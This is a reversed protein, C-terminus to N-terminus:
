YYPTNRKEYMFDRLQSAKLGIFFYFRRNVGTPTWDFSMRWCALDKSVRLTPNRLDKELWDFSFGGSFQWGPAPEFSANVASQISERESIPNTRTLNYNLSISIDWPISFPDYGPSNEGFIDVDDAQRLKRDVFRGGLQPKDTNETTDISNDQEIDSRGMSIGQSSFSTNLGVNLSTLRLGFGKGADWAFRDVVKYSTIEGEDNLIPDQDYFSFRSSGSFNIFKIAPTRFSLNMDSFKLSDRTFDYNGSVTANLLEYKEPELTDSDSYKIEFKNFLSYNLSQSERNSASGSGGDREFVRYQVANGDADIYEDYFGNSPDSQDPRFTYGITPQLTHRMSKIGLVNPNSIGYITTQANVNFNYYYEAFTGYQLQEDVEGTEANFSKKVKRNFFNFGGGISPNITFFGLKPLTYNISPAISVFQRQDFKFSQQTFSSDENVQITETQLDKRQQTYIQNRSTLNFDNGLIKFLRKQPVTFNLTPTQQWTEDIINQNRNYALNLNGWNGLQATYGANSRTTQEVRTNLNGVARRNFDSSAFNLSATLRQYPDIQWNNNVVVRFTQQFDEDVNTRTQGYALDYNGSFDDGKKWRTANKFLYGGKTFYDVNFQTDWYQSAAWYFGLGEFVVGRSESFDWAPIMIGSKRGGETSFFLGFPYVLFPIDQIYFVIPDMFIKDGNVMKMKSSGFYTSPALEECTTYYGDQINFEDKGVRKIKSGFYFGEDLATEGKTIVGKSTKYNYLIKEGYYEEGKDVMRPLDYKLGTSDIGPTATLISNEFEIEIYKSNLEQETMKLNASSVM